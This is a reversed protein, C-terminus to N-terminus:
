NRCIRALLKEILAMRSLTDKQAMAIVERSDTMIVVKAQQHSIYRVPSSTKSLDKAM